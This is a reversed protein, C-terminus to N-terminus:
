ALTHKIYSCSTVSLCPDQDVSLGDPTSLSLIRYLSILILLFKWSNNLCRLPFVWRPGERHGGKFVVVLKVPCGCHVFFVSFFLFIFEENTASTSIFRWLKVGILTASGLFLLVIYYICLKKSMYALLSDFNWTFHVSKKKDIDPIDTKEAREVIM